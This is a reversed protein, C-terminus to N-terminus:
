RRADGGGAAEIATLFGAFPRRRRAAAHVWEIVGDRPRDVQGFRGADDFRRCVRCRGCGLQDREVTMIATMMAIQDAEGFLRGSSLAVAM